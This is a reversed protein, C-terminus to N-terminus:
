EYCHIASANGRSDCFQRIVANSSTQEKQYSDMCMVQCDLFLFLKHNHMVDIQPSCVRIQMIQMRRYCSDFNYARDSINMTTANSPPVESSNKRNQIIRGRRDCIRRNCIVGLDLLDIFMDTRAARSAGHQLILSVFIFWAHINRFGM